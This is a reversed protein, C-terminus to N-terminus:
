VITKQDLGKKKEMPCKKKTGQDQHLKGVAPHDGLFQLWTDLWQWQLYGKYDLM